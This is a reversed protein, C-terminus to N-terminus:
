KGAFLKTRALEMTAFSFNRLDKALTSDASVKCHKEEQNILFLNSEYPRSVYFANQNIGILHEDYTFSLVKREEKFLNIAFPKNHFNIGILHAISPLIDIQGCLSHNIEPYIKQPAFFILPTHHMGLYMDAEQNVIAGHDGVLVFLTNNFWKKTVANKFFNGIAWDAYSVINKRQDFVSAKFNINKPIAYPAHDSGSLILAFFPSKVTDFVAIGKQYLVHDPVGTASLVEKSPFEEEGIIHELGIKRMFGEMNDFQTDHTTFFFSQYGREKLNKFFGNEPLQIRLDELPKNLPLAPFSTLTAFLGNFTHIGDSYCNKFFLAKQAISDLHPTLKLGNNYLGTKNSGMSEMLLVVVNYNYLLISDNIASKEKPQINKKVIYYALESDFFTKNTNDTESKFFSFVPNLAAQNAIEYSCFFATGWRIPSKYSLRGRMGIALLPILVLLFFLVKKHGINQPKFLNQKAYTIIFVFISTAVVFLLFYNVFASDQLIMKISFAIDNSWHLAAKNIPLRYNQYFPINAIAILIAIAFQTIILFHILSYFVNQVKEKVYLSIILLLVPIALIYSLIVTDFRLGVLFSKFLIPTPVNTLLDANSWLFLFRIFAFFLIGIAYVFLLYKLPSPINKLFRLM